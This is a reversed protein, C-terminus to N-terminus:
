VTKKIGLMRVEHESMWNDTAETHGDSETFVIIEHVPNLSAQYEVSKLLEPGPFMLLYVAEPLYSKNLTLPSYLSLKRGNVSIVQNSKLKNVVRKEFIRELIQDCHSKNNVCLYVECQHHEARDIAYKLISGHLGNMLESFERQLIVRDAMKTGKSSHIEGAMIDTVGLEACHLQADSHM